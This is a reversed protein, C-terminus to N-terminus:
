PALSDSTRKQPKCQDEAQEIQELNQSAREISSVNGFSATGVVFGGVTPSSGSKITGTGTGVIWIM